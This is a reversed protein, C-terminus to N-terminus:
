QFILSFKNSNTGLQIANGALDKLSSMGITVTETTAILSADQEAKIIPYITAGTGDENWEWTFDVEASITAPITFTPIITTDMPEPFTLEITEDFEILTDPTTTTNTLDAMSLDTTPIASNFAPKVGDKLSISPAKTPDAMGSANYAVVIFSVVGGDKFYKGSNNNITITTDEIASNVQIYSSDAETKAFLAYGEANKASTWSLTFQNLGYNPTTAGTLTSFKISAAQGVDGVQSAVEFTAATGTFGVLAVGEVSTLQLYVSHTADMWWSGDIPFLILTKNDNKWRTGVLMPIPSAVPTVLVAIDSPEIRDVDVAETFEIYLSDTLAVQEEGWFNTSMVRMASGSATMNLIPASKSEGAGVGTVDVDGTSAYAIDDVILQRVDIAYPVGGPLDGFSYSGSEDATDSYVPTPWQIGDVEGLKLQVVAGEAAKTAGTLDVYFARGSVAAGSQPLMVNLSLDPVRPADSNGVDLVVAAIQVTAYGPRSVQFMYQGIKVKSFTAFGDANSEESASDEDLQMVTVSDLGEGTVGDRVMFSVKATPKSDKFDNTISADDSCAALMLGFSIVSPLLLKNM